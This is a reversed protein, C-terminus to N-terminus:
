SQLSKETNLALAQGENLLETYRAMCPSKHCPQISPENVVGEGFHSFRPDWLVEQGERGDQLINKLIRSHNLKIVPKQYSHQKTSSACSGVGHVPLALLASIAEPLRATVAQEKLLLELVLQRTPCKTM